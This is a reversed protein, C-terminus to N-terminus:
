RIDTRKTILIYFLVVVYVSKLKGKWNVNVTLHASSYNIIMASSTYYIQKLSFNADGKFPLADIRWV